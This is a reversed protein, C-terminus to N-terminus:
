NSVDYSMNMPRILIKWADIIPIGLKKLGLNVMNEESSDLTAITFASSYLSSFERTLYWLKNVLYTINKEIVCIFLILTFNLFFHPLLVVYSTHGYQYVTNWFVVIEKPMDHRIHLPIIWTSIYNTYVDLILCTFFQSKLDESFPDDIHAVLM